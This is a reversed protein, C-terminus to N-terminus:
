IDRTRLISIVKGYIINKNIAGYERSDGKSDLNDNVVFFTGKEIRQPYPISIEDGRAIDYVPYDSFEEGNVYLHGEEDLSIIDNEVGIIRSVYQKDDKSFLVVDGAELNDNTRFFLTLDGDSVKPNMAVGEIRRIGFLVGLIIWFILLLVILKIGLRIWEQKPSVKKFEPHKM